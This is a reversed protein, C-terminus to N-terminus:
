SGLSRLGIFFLSIAIFPSAIVLLWVVYGITAKFVDKCADAVERNFEDM